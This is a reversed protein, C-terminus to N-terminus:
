QGEEDRKRERVGVVMAGGSGGCGGVLGRGWGFVGGVLGRGEGRWWVRQGQGEVVM